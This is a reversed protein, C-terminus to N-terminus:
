LVEDGVLASQRKRRGLVLAIVVLVATAGKLDMQNINLERAGARM